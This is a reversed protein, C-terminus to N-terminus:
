RLCVGRGLWGIELSWKLKFTYGHLSGPRASANAGSLSCVITSRLQGTPFAVSVSWWGKKLLSNSREAALFELLTVSRIFKPRPCLAKSPKPETVDSLLYRLPV